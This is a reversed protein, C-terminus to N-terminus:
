GSAASPASSRRELEARVAPVVHTGLLEIRACHRPTRSTGMSGAGLIVAPSSVVFDPRRHEGVGFVDVGVQQSLEIEEM